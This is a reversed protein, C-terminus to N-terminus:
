QIRLYSSINATMQLARFCGDGDCFKRSTYKKM